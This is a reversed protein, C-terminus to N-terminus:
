LGGELMFTLTGNEPHRPDNDLRIVELRGVGILGSVLGPSADRGLRRFRTLGNDRTDVFRVGPVEVMAAVVHSLHLAQGFTYRDPHFFGLGGDSRRGSGLVDLLGALVDSRRRDPAVQVTFALEVPVNWPGEIRVDEDALRYGDLYDLLAQRFTDDVALGGVRDVTLLITYWSGNWVRSACAKQIGPFGQVIAEYDAPLVARRTAHMAQPAYRRVDETSEPESGGWAPLPNWVNAIPPPEPPLADPSADQGARLLIHRIADAGVNGVSGNGVRYWAKLVRGEPPRRGHENDGFRLTASGDEETEVVFAREFRDCGLLDNQPLWVATSVPNMDDESRPRLEDIWVEPAAKRPDRVSLSSAPVRHDGPFPEGLDEVRRESSAVPGFDLSPSFPVDESPVIGLSQGVTLGHDALLVNGCAVSVPDGDVQGLPLDFPLADEVSWRVRFLSEGSLRDYLGTRVSTVRVVHRRAPDRLKLGSAPEMSQELALFGGVLRKELWEPSCRCVGGSCAETLDCDHSTTFVAPCVIMAETSGRPLTTAAGAWDHLRMRNLGWHADLDHLGEFFEADAGDPVRSLAASEEATGTLFVFGSDPSPSGSFRRGPLQVFRGPEVELAVFARANCGDHMRYDLLRAHRRVSARKRAVDLYAEGAIADQYYSLYDGVYAVAEVLAHWLDAVSREQWDPMVLSMRELMLRRFSSYDKALYDLSVPPPQVTSADDEIRGQPGAMDLPSTVRDVMTFEVSSLVPDFDPPPLRDISGPPLALDDDQLVENTPDAVLALTYPLDDWTGSVRVVLVTDGWGRAPHHEDSYDNYSVLEGPEIDDSALAWDVTLGNARGNRHIRVNQGTLLPHGTQDDILPKFCQVVLYRWPNDQHYEPLVEVFDIGNPCSPENLRALLAARRRNRDVYSDTM